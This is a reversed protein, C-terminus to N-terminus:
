GSVVKDLGSGVIAVLLFFIAAVLAMVRLGGKSFSDSLKALAEVLKATDAIAGYQEANGLTEEGKDAPLVQAEPKKFVHYVFIAFSIVAFGYSTWTAITLM